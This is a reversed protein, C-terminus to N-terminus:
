SLYKAHIVIDGGLNDVWVVDAITPSPYTDLHHAPIPTGDGLDVTLPATTHVTAKHRTWTPTPIAVVANRLQRNARLRGLVTM